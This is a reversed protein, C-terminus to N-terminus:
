WYRRLWPLVGHTPDAVAAYLERADTAGPFNYRSQEKWDRATSWSAKLMADVAHDLADKLGALELLRALDHSYMESVTRPPPPFHGAATRKCICAKLACEVAYGVLYYAGEYQNATLLLAAERLRLESLRQFDAGTIPDLAQM